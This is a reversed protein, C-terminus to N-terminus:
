LGYESPVFTEGWVVMARETLQEASSPLAQIADSIMALWRLEREPLCLKGDNVADQITEVALKAMAVTRHYDDSSVVIRKAAEHMVALDLM